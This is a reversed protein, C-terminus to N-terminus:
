RRSRRRSLREAVEVQVMSAVGLVLALIALQKPTAPTGGLLPVNHGPGLAIALAALATLGAARRSRGVQRGILAGVATATALLGGAFMAAAESRPVLLVGRGDAGMAFVPGHLEGILVAPLLVAAAGGAVCVATWPRGPLHPRLEAFAAGVAAGGAAAIPAGVPAIYWIPTIWLHHVVLFVGLGSVGAVAGAAVGAPRDVVVDTAVGGGAEPNAAILYRAM